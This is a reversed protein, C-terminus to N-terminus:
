YTLTITVTDSYAGGPRPAQAPVRGYVTISQPSSDGAGAGSVTDNGITNGWRQTRGANRYMEYSVFEGTSSRMRRTGGDANSGDGLGLNWSTGVPCRVVVQSAVDVQSTITSVFGFDLDDVQSIRCDTAVSASALTDFSASGSGGAGSMCSPPYGSNSWAWYLASGALQSQFTWGGPLSQNGPIRGYVTVTPSVQVNGAPVSFASSAAAYGGGAPPPGLVQTRAADTYLDYAMQAGNGNSMWRPNVGSIPSGAALYLCVRFYTTSANSQCSYGIGLSTDTNAHLNMTGFVINGVGALWCSQAAAPLPVALGALLGALALWRRSNWHSATRPM